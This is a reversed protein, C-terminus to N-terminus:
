CRCCLNCMANICCFTACFTCCDSMNGGMQRNDDFNSNHNMNANGSRFQKENFEMKQKLKTFANSYKENYPEMNMAIELQKRSEGMWNKKYFIVAQLYHWEAIRDTINDLKTQADAIKGSKILAEIELLSEPERNDNSTENQKLRMIETYATEVKTLNKAASNGVEGEEFREKLYKNKLTQYAQEIEEVSANENLGLIKFYEQM